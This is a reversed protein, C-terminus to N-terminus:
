HFKIRKPAIHEIPLEVRLRRGQLMSLLVQARQQGPLGADFIAEYGHFPGSEVIVPEGRKFKEPMARCGSNVANLHHRLVHIFREPIEAPQGGFAVIGIAGPIWELVSSGAVALDICAFLYGPFYPRITSCRPNVPQVHICPFFVNLQRSRLQEYLFQEKRPKSQVVHWRIMTLGGIFYHHRGSGLAKPPRPMRRTVMRRISYLM